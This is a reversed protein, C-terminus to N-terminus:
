SNNRTKTYEEKIGRDFQEIIKKLKKKELFNDEDRAKIRLDQLLHEMYEKDSIKKM